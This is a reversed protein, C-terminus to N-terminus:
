ARQVDPIVVLEVHPRDPHTFRGGWHLGEEEVVQGFLAWPHSEAYPESGVFCCDVAQGLQHKSQTHIGDIYTVVQGKITRGQAYLLSQQGTSRWGDTIRMPTGNDQMRHLVRGMREILRADLKTLDVSM